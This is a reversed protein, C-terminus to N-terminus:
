GDAVKALLRATREALYWRGDVLELRDEFEGLIPAATPLGARDSDASWAFLLVTTLSRASSGGDHDVRINTCVHRTRRDPSGTRYSEEIAARGLIEEGSPRTLRADVTYLAALGAWDRVDNRFASELVLRECADHVASM